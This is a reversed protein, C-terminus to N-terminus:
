REPSWSRNVAPAVERPRLYNRSALATAGALLITAAGSASLTAAAGVAGVLPGGLATGLPTAIVTFASRAALVSPLSATPVAAQFISYTLPIFPGYILGGLAFCGITVGGPAFAFPILCAGWGAVIAVTVRRNDRGHLAGTILSAILAGIGFAAWYTGLLSGHGHLNRAVYVPLADEVPGYLFFFFWTVVILGLLRQARLLRFGSGGVSAEPPGAIADTAVPVRATQLGLYAFSAADLAILRAPGTRALLVGAIAPGVIMAASAQATALSNAALRGDPGGLASLMTYEGATGWASLASSGALVVLYTYPTLDGALSLLAITGLLSARLVCNALVLMRAPRRRLLRGFALAGIAGPLTYVAVAGGVFVGLAGSPAIRVALWAITVMSMGDGLSSVGLGIMLRRTQRDALLARYGRPM